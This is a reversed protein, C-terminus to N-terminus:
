RFVKSPGRTSGGSTVSTTVNLMGTEKDRQLPPPTVVQPAPNATQDLIRQTSPAQVNSGLGPFPTLNGSVSVVPRRLNQEIEGIRKLCVEKLVQPIKYNLVINLLFQIESEM